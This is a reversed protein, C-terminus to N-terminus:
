PQGPISNFQLSRWLFTLSYHKCKLTHWTKMNVKLITNIVKINADIFTYSWQGMHIGWLTISRQNFHLFRLQIQNIRLHQLHEYKRALSHIKASNTAKERLHNCIKEYHVAFPTIIVFFEWFVGRELFKLILSKGKFNFSMKLRNEHLLTCLPNLQLGGEGGKFFIFKQSFFYVSVCCM